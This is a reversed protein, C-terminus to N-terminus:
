EEMNNLYGFVRAIYNKTENFPPVGDYKAVNGPGANYAALALKTDGKYQQHMKAFYKTGGFINEEPNFADNVGMDRATSDMLQMLGKARATSIAKPNAASETLIISKIINKDVGYKESAKDIIDEYDKLRDVAKSSPKITPYDNESKNLKPIERKAFKFEAFNIEKSNLKMLDPLEEGTINKYIMDAVGLGKSETMYSAIKEEFVTDLIDGGYNNEGFLGGASKTMSKMMLSTLLSEFDRASKQLKQKEDSSYDGKIKFTESIHKNPNTINLNVDPM